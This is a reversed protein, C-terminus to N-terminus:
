LHAFHPLDGVLPKCYEIFARSVDRHGNIFEVPMVKTKAAVDRLPILRKEIRYPHNSLRMISVSGEM